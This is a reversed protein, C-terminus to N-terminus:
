PPMPLPCRLNIATSNLSVVGLDREVGGQPGAQCGGQSGQSVSGCLIRRGEILPLPHPIGVQGQNVNYGLICVASVGVKGEPPMESLLGVRWRHKAMVGLIGPDAALRRLRAPADLRPRPADSFPTCVAGALQPPTCGSCERV